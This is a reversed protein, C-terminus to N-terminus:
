NIKQTIMTQRPLNDKQLTLGINKKNTTTNPETKINMYKENNKPLM